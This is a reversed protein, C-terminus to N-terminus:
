SFIVASLCFVFHATGIISLKDNWKDGEEGSPAALPELFVSQKQIEVWILNSKSLFIQVWFKKSLYLDGSGGERWLNLNPHKSLLTKRPEAESTQVNLCKECEFLHMSLMNNCCVFARPEFHGYPSAFCHCPHAYM